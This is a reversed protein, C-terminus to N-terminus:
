NIKAWFECDKCYWNYYTGFWGHQWLKMQKEPCYKKCHHCQKTFGLLVDLGRIKSLNFQYLTNLRCMYASYEDSTHRYRCIIQDSKPYIHDPCDLKCMDVEGM